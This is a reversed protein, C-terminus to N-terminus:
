GRFYESEDVEHSDKTSLWRILAERVENEMKSTWGVFVGCEPCGSSHGGHGFAYSSRFLMHKPQWKNHRGFSLVPFRIEGPCTGGTRVIGCLLSVEAQIWEEQRPNDSNDQFRFSYKLTM